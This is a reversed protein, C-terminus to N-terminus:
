ADLLSQVYYGLLDRLEGQRELVAALGDMDPDDSGQRARAVIDQAEALLAGYREPRCISLDSVVPRICADITDAFSRARILEEVPSSPGQTSPRLSETPPLVPRGTDQVPEVDELGHNFDLPGIRSTPM